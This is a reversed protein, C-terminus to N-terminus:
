VIYDVKKMRRLGWFYAIITSFVITSVSMLTAFLPYEKAFYIISDLFIDPFLKNLIIVITLVIMSFIFGSIISSRISMGFDLVFQTNALFSHLALWILVIILFIPLSVHGKLNPDFIYASALLVVLLPLSFIYYSMLRYRAITKNTIPLQQLHIMHEVVRLSGRLNQTRFIIPRATLTLLIFLFIFTFSAGVYMGDATFIILFALIITLVISFLHYRWSHKFEFVLLHRILKKQTM